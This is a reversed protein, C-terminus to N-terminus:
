LSLSYLKDLRIKEIRIDEEGFYWPSTKKGKKIEKRITAMNSWISDVTENPEHCEPYHNRRILAYVYHKKM